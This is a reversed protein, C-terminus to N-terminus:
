KDLYVQSKVWVGSMYNILALEGRGKSDCDNLSIDRLSHVECFLEKGEPTIYKLKDSVKLTQDSKMDIVIHAGAKSAEIVEGIYSLDKRQIRYNKLKKFLVDSKNIQFYGRIVDNPYVEKFESFEKDTKLLALQPLLEICDHDRLDLRIFDFNIDQLESYKDLLFLDKIHFMFTGHKNEILPFGKHPSEESEGIASLYDDSVIQNTKKEDEEPLLASLLKRPSYFLLIKGLVLIELECTIIQRYEKLKTKNLEISLIVRELRSGIYNIWTKLGTINHNGTEALFHIQKDTEELVYELVGPDQVRIVDYLDSPITKFSKTSEEFDNEVILIDWELIVKLELEKALKCLELLKENNNSAYRSLNKNSLIVEKLNSEKILNIDRVSQAYTTYNM